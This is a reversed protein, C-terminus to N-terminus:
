LRRRTQSALAVPMHEALWLPEGHDLLARLADLYVRPRAPDFRAFSAEDVAWAPQAMQADNIGTWPPGFTNLYGMGKRGPHQHASTWPFGAKAPKLAPLADAALWEDIANRAAADDFYCLMLQHCCAAHLRFTPLHRDFAAELEAATSFSTGGPLSYPHGDSLLRYRSVVGSPLYALTGELTLELAAFRAATNAEPVNFDM